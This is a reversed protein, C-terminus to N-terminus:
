PKPLRLATDARLVGASRCVTAPKEGDSACIGASLYNASAVIAKTVPDSTVRLHNAIENRNRGSISSPDFASGLIFTLNGVDMFPFSEGGESSDYKNVLVQIAHPPPDLVQMTPGEDEYGTFALFPSSYTSLYFTFTPSNPAYDETSSAMEYLQNFHGFRSLALIVGWRTAACFPCYEAGLFFSNPVVAGHVRTRFGPQHHDISPPSVPIANSGIGVNNFVALPVTTVDKFLAPPAKEYVYVSPSTPIPSPSGTTTPQMAVTFAAFGGSNAPTVLNGATGYTVTLSALAALSVGSV